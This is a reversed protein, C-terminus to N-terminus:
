QSGHIIKWGIEMVENGHLGRNRMALNRGRTKMGNCSCQLTTEAQTTNLLPIRTRFHSTLLSLEIKFALLHLSFTLLQWFIWKFQNKCLFNLLCFKLCAILFLLVKSSLPNSNLILCLNFTTKTNYTSSCWRPENMMKILASVQEQMPSLYM